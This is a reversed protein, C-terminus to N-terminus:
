RDYLGALECKSLKEVDGNVQAHRAYPLPPTSLEGLLQFVENGQEPTHSQRAIFEFLDEESSLWYTEGDLVIVGDVSYTDGVAPQLKIGGDIELTLSDATGQGCPAWAGDVDTMRHWTGMLPLMAETTPQYAQREKTSLARAAWIEEGDPSSQEWLVHSQGESFLAGLSLVEVDAVRMQAVGATVDIELIGPHTGKLGVYVRDGEPSIAVAVPTDGPDAAWVEVADEGPSEWLLRGDEVSVRVGSEPHTSVMPQQEPWKDLAVPGKGPRSRLQVDVVHYFPPGEGRMAGKAKVKGDGTEIGVYEFMGKNADLVKWKVWPEELRSLPLSCINVSAFDEAAETAVFRGDYVGLAPLTMTLVEGQRVMQGQRQLSGDGQTSYLDTCGVGCARAVDYELGDSGLHVTKSGEQGGIRLELPEDTCAALKVGEVGVALQAFSGELDSPSVEEAGVEPSLSVVVAAGQQQGALWLKGQEGKAWATARELGAVQQLDGKQAVFLGAGPVLLGVSTGDELFEPNQAPGGDMAGQWWVETVGKTLDRVEIVMEGADSQGVTVKKKGDTSLSELSPESATRAGVAELRKPPVNWAVELSTLGGSESGLTDVQVTKGLSRLGTITEGSVGRYAIDQAWLNKQPAASLRSSQEEVEPAPSGCAMMALVLALPTKAM